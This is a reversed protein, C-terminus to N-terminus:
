SRMAEAYRADREPKSALAVTLIEVASFWPSTRLPDAIASPAPSGSHTAFNPWLPRGLGPRRGPELCPHNFTMAEGWYAM